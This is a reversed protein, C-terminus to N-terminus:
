TYFLISIYLFINKGPWVSIICECMSVLGGHARTCHGTSGVVGGGVCVCVYLKFSKRSFKEEELTLSYSEFTEM